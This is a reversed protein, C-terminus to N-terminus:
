EKRRFLYETKKAPKVVHLSMELPDFGELNKDHEKTRGKISILKNYFKTKKM